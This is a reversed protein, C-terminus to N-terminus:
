TQHCITCQPLHTHILISGNVMNVIEEKQQLKTAIKPSARHSIPIFYIIYCFYSKNKYLLVYNEKLKEKSFCARKRKGLISFKLTSPM